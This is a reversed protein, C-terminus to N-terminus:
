EPRGIGNSSVFEYAKPSSRNWVVDQFERLRGTEMSSNDDVIERISMDDSRYENVESMWRHAREKAAPYKKQRYGPPLSGIGYKSVRYAFVGAVIALGGGILVLPTLSKKAM